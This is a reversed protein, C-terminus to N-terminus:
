PALTVALEGRRAYHVWRDQSAAIAYRAGAMAIGVPLPLAPGQSNVVPSLTLAAQMTGRTCVLQLDAPKGSVEPLAIRAPTTFPAYTMEDNGLTCHAGSAPSAERGSGIQTVLTVERMGTIREAFAPDTLRPQLADADDGTQGGCAALGFVLVAGTVTRRCIM